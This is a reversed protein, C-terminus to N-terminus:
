RLEEIPLYANRKASVWRDEGDADDGDDYIVVEDPELRAECIGEPNFTYTLDFNPWHEAGSRSSSQGSTM